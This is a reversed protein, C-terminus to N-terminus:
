QWNATEAPQEKNQEMRLRLYTHLAHTALRMQWPYTPSIPSMERMFPLTDSLAAARAGCLEAM